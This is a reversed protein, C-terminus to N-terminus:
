GSIYNVDWTEKECVMALRTEDKEESQVTFWMRLAPWRWGHHLWFINFKHITSSSTSSSFSRFVIRTDMFINYCNITLHLLSLFILCICKISLGPLCVSLAMFLLVYWKMFYPFSVTSSNLTYFDYVRSKSYYFFSKIKLLKEVGVIAYIWLVDYFDISHRNNQIKHM